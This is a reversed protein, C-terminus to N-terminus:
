INVLKRILTCLKISVPRKITTGKDNQTSIVWSVEVTIKRMKYKSKGANFKEDLEKSITVKRVFSANAAPRAMEQPDIDLTKFATDDDAQNLEKLNKYPTTKIRDIMDAAYAIGKMEEITSEAGRRANMINMILPVFAFSLVAIAVLIEIMTFASNKRYREFIVMRLDGDM